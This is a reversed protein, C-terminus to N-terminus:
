VELQVCSLTMIKQEITHNEAFKVADNLNVRTPTVFCQVPQLYLGKQTQTIHTQRTRWAYPYYAIRRCITDLSTLSVRSVRSFKENDLIRNRMTSFKVSSARM